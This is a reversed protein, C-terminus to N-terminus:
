FVSVLTFKDSLLECYISIESVYSDNDNQAMVSMYTPSIETYYLGCM